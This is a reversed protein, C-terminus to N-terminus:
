AHPQCPALSTHRCNGHWKHLPIAQKGIGAWAGVYTTLTSVVTRADSNADQRTDRRMRHSLLVFTRALLRAQQGPLQRAGENLLSLWSTLQISKLEPPGPQAAVADVAPVAPAGRRGRGAPVAPAAAVAPQEFPETVEIDAPQLQLREPNILNSDTIAEYLEGESHYEREFIRAEHLERLVRSCCALSLSHELLNADHLAQRIADNALDVKCALICIGQIEVAAVTAPGGGAPARWQLYRLSQIVPSTRSISLEDEALPDAPAAIRTLRTQAADVGLRAHPGAGQDPAPPVHAMGAAIAAAAM